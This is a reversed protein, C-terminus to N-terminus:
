DESNSKIIMGLQKAISILKNFIGDKEIYFSNSIGNIKEYIYNLENTTHFIIPLEHNKRILKATEIGNTKGKIDIDMIILHIAKNHICEIASVANNAFEINNFGANLFSQKLIFSIVEDDEVILITKNEM